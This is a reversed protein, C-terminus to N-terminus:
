PCVQRSHLARVDGADEGHLAYMGQGYMLHAHHAYNHHGGVSRADRVARIGCGRNRLHRRVGQGGGSILCDTYVFCSPTDYSETCRRTTEVSTTPRLLPAFHRMYFLFIAREPCFIFFDGIIKGYNRKYGYMQPAYHPTSNYQLIHEQEASTDYTVGGSCISYSNFIM